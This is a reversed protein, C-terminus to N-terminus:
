FIITTIFTFIKYGNTVNNRELLPVWLRANHIMTYKIYIIVLYIHSFIGRSLRLYFLVLLCASGYM